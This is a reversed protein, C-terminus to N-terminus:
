YLIRDLIEATFLQALETRPNHNEPMIHYTSGGKSMWVKGNKDIGYYITKRHKRVSKVKKVFTEQPFM